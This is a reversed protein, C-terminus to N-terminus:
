SIVAERLGDRASRRSADCFPRGSATLLEALQLDLQLRSSLSSSRAILALSGAFCASEDFPCPSARTAEPSSALRRARDFFRSSLSTRLVMRTTWGSFSLRCASSATRVRLRGRPPAPRLGAPTSRCRRCGSADAPKWGKQRARRRRQHLHRRAREMERHHPRLAPRDGEVIDDLIDNTVKEHFAGDDRYSWFYLKLSKLEVCLKDAVM